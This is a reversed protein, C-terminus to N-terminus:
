PLRLEESLPDFGDSFLPMIFFFVHISEGNSNTSESTCLSVHTKVIRVPMRLARRKECLRGSNNEVHM